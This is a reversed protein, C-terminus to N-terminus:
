WEFSGDRYLFPICVGHKGDYLGICRVDCLLPHKGNTEIDWAVRKGKANRLFTRIVDLSPRLLYNTDRWTPRWGHAVAVARRMDQEVVGEYKANSRLLFAPHLTPTVYLM